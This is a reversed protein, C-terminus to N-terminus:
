STKEIVGDTFCLQVTSVTTMSSKEHRLYFSTSALFLLLLALVIYPVLSRLSCKTLEDGKRGIRGSQETLCAGSFEGNKMDSM